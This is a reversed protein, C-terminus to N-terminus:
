NLLKNVNLIYIYFLVFKFYIIQIVGYNMKQKESLSSEM